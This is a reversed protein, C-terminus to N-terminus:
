PSDLFPIVTAALAPSTIVSMHTLGPLIALQAGLLAHFEAIHDPRIVDADGFVLLTPASIGAVDACWDFDTKLWAAIKSVLVPWNDPRPAIKAYVQYLPSQKLMETTAPGMSDMTAVTTPYFGSRKCPESVVILKRVVAPHRIATQMAVAGGLSYGMIDARAIGLDGLLEAVDDAMTEPHIPRDVDATRGHGQLDVAIVRHHKALAPLIDGLMAVNGFAGHILVLPAGRGHIEHYM